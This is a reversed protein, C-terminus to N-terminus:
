EGGKFQKLDAMIQASRERVEKAEAQLEEVERRLQDVEHAMDILVDKFGPPLYSAALVGLRSLAAKMKELM